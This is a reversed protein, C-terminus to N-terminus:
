PMPSRSSIGSRAAIDFATSTPMWLHATWWTSRRRSPATRPPKMPTSAQVFAVRPGVGVGRDPIEVTERTAEKPTPAKQHARQKESTQDCLRAHDFPCCSTVVLLSSHGTEDPDKRLRFDLCRGAETVPVERTPSSGVNRAEGPTVPWSSRPCALPFPALIRHLPSRRPVKCLFCCQCVSLSLAFALALHISLCSLFRALRQAGAGFPEQGVSRRIHQAAARRIPWASPRSRWPGSSVM